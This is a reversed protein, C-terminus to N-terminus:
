SRRPYSVSTMDAVIDCHLYSANERAEAVGFRFPIYPAFKEKLRRRCRYEAIRLPPSSKELRQRDGALHWLDAAIPALAAVQKASVPHPPHDIRRAAVVSTLVPRETVFIQVDREGDSTASAHALRPRLLPRYGHGEGIRRRPRARGSAPLSQVLRNPPGPGRGRGADDAPLPLAEFPILGRAAGARCLRRRYSLIRCEPSIPDLDQRHPAIGATESASRLGRGQQWM